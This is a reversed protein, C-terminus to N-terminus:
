FGSFVLWLIYFLDYFFGKIFFSVFFLFFDNRNKWILNIRIRGM